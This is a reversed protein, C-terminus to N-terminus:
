EKNGHHNDQNNNNNNNNSRCAVAKMQMDHSEGLGLLYAVFIYCVLQSGADCALRCVCVYIVLKM